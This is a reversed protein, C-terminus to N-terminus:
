NGSQDYLLAQLNASDKPLSPTVDSAHSQISALGSAFKDLQNATQALGARLEGLKASLSAQKQKTQLKGSQKTAMQGVVTAPSLVSYVGDTHSMITEFEQLKTLNDVSLFEKMNPTTYMVIVSQGGFASELSQNDQYVNTSPKILTDNGTDLRVFAVGPLLLLVVLSFLGVMKVPHKSLRKSMCAFVKKM